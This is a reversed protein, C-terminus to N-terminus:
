KLCNLGDIFKDIIKYNEYVQTKIKSYEENMLKISVDNRDQIYRLYFFLLKYYERM